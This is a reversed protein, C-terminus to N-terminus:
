PPEKEYASIFSALSCDEADGHITQPREGDFRVVVFGGVSEAERVPYGQAKLGDAIERAKASSVADGGVTIKRRSPRKRSRRM